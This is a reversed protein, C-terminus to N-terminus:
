ANPDLGEGPAQLKQFTEVIPMLLAADPEVGLDECAKLYQRAMVTMWQGYAAPLKLFFPALTVTAEQAATLAEERRGLESLRAGLNNLSLALDPLFADPRAAALRRYIDTAEQAAALADEPRGLESLRIGLNLLATALISQLQDGSGAGQEAEATGRATDAIRLLLAAATERLALTNAPLANAVEVLAGFDTEPAGALADLWHVPEAYGAEAFDQAIRMLTESAKGVSARAAATIRGAADVGGTALGGNPGFWALIVGEGIIDPLIPAVGRNADSAPLADKLADVTADLDASSRLAAIERAALERTEAVTMGQLLTAIAAMHRVFAGPLRHKQDVGGAAGIRGIRDLESRGISLALDARSLALAGKVGAKGAALGAALGAM